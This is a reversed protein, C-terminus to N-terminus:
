VSWKLSSAPLNDKNKALIYDASASM